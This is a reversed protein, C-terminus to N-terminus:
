FVPTTQIDAGGPIPGEYWRLINGSTFYCQTYGSSSNAGFLAYDASLASRKVWISLTYTGASTPSGATRSLYSSDSSNFRLSREILYGDEAAQGAAGLFLPNVSGPISM